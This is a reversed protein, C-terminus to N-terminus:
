YGRVGKGLYQRTLLDFSKKTPELNKEYIDRYVRVLKKLRFNIDDKDFDSLDLTTSDLWRIMDEYEEGTGKKLIQALEALGDPGGVDEVIGYGQGEFVRPLLKLSIEEERSEELFVSVAWGDGYDYALKLKAYDNVHGLMESVTVRDPMALLEDEKLSVEDFPFEFHVDQLMTQGKFEELIEEETLGIGKVDEIFSDRRYQTLSFLHSAQMEFMLMICYSLQAMTKEGNIEFRRWVLPEYDNLEAYFRFIKHKTM